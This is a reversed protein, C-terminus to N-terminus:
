AVPLRLHEEAAAAEADAVPGALADVAALPVPRGRRARQDALYALESARRWRTAVETQFRDACSALAPDDRATAVRELWQGYRTRSRVGLWCALAVHAAERPRQRMREAYRRLAGADAIGAANARVVVAIDLPVAAAGTEVTALRPRDGLIGALADTALMATTPRAPGWATDNHYADAIWAQRRRLDVGTVIFSHEMHANGAYPLWAMEYADAIAFVPHGGAILRACTEVASAGGATEHRAVVLGTDDRLRREVPERAFGPLGDGSEAYADSAELFAWDRAFPTFSDAAGAHRALAQLNDDYCDLRDADLGSLDVPVRTADGHVTTTV